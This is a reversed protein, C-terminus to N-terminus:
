NTSTITATAAPLLPLLLLLLLLLILPNWAEAAKRRDLFPKLFSVQLLLDPTSDQLPNYGSQTHM